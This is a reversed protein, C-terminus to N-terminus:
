ATEERKERPETDWVGVWSVKRHKKVFCFLVFCFMAKSGHEALSVLRVCMCNGLLWLLATFLPLLGQDRLHAARVDADSHGHVAEGPGAEETSDKFCLPKIGQNPNSEAARHNHTALAVVHLAAESRQSLSCPQPPSQARRPPLARYPAPLRAKRVKGMGSLVPSQSVHNRSGTQKCLTPTTLGSM